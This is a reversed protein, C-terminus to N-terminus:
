SRNQEKTDAFFPELARGISRRLAERFRSLDESCGLPKLLYSEAHVRWAKLASTNDTASTVYIVAAEHRQRVREILTFGDMAGLDTETVCIDCPSNSLLDVPNLCSRVTVLHGFPLGRLLGRVVSRTRDLDKPIPDCIALTLSPFAQTQSGM